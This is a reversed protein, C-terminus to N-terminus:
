AHETHFTSLAAWTARKLDSNGLLQELEPLCLAPVALISGVSLDHVPADGGQVCALRPAAGILWLRTLPQGLHRSETLITLYDRAAGADRPLNGQKDLPWHVTERDWHPASAGVALLLDNLLRYAPDRQGLPEGLPLSLWVGLDGCRAFQVTFRPNTASATQAQASVAGSGAPSSVPEILAQADLEGSASVAPKTSPTAVVPAASTPAVASPKASTAPAPSQLEQRVAALPNASAKAASAAPTTASAASEASEATSSASSVSPAAPKRAASTAPEATSALALLDASSPAAGPIVGRPVWSAIQMAELYALRQAQQM